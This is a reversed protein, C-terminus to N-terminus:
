LSVRIHWFRARLAVICSFNVFKWDGYECYFFSEHVGVDLVPFRLGGGLVGFLLGGSM